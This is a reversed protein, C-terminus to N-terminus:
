NNEAENDPFFTFGRVVLPVKAPDIEEIEDVFVRPPDRRDNLPKLQDDVRLLEIAALEAAEANKAELFRTTYFGMREQKDENRLWFNRGNMLVRYHPM